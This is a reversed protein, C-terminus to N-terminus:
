SADLIRLPSLRGMLADSLATLNGKVRGRRDVYEENRLL